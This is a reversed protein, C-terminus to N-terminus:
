ALVPDRRRALLLGIAMWTAADAPNPDDGRSRWYLGVLLLVARKVEPPVTTADVWAPDVRPHLLGAIATSAQTGIATLEADDWDHAVHVQTKIEELTAWSVPATKPERDYPPLTEDAM